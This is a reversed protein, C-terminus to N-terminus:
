LRVMWIAALFFALSLMAVLFSTFLWSARLSPKARMIQGSSFAVCGGLVSYFLRLDSWKGGYVDNSKTYFALSVLLGGGLALGSIVSPMLHHEKKPSLRNLELMMLGFVMLVISSYFLNHSFTLHYFKNLEAVESTETRLYNALTKTIAHVALGAYGLLMALIIIGGWVKDFFRSGRQKPKRYISNLTLLLWPYICLAVVFLYTLQLIPLNYIMVRHFWDIPYFAISLLVPFFLLWTTKSRLARKLNHVVVESM